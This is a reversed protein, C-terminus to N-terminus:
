PDRGLHVKGARAREPGVPQREPRGPRDPLRPLLRGDRGRHARGKDDHRRHLRGPQLREGHRQLHLLPRRALAHAPRLQRDHLLRHADHGRGPGPAVGAPGLAAGPPEDERPADRRPLLLLGHGPHLERGQPQLRLQLPQRHHRAPQEDRRQPARRAHQVVRGQRLRRGRRRPHPEHQLVEQHHGAPGAPQLRGGPGAPVAPVHGRRRRESDRLGQQRVHRHRGPHGPAERLDDGPPQRNGRQLLAHQRVERPPDRDPRRDRGHLLVVGQPPRVHKRHGPYRAGRGLGARQRTASPRGQHVPVDEHRRHRRRRPGM